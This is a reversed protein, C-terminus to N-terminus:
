KKLFVMRKFTVQFLFNKIRHLNDNIRALLLMKMLYEQLLIIFYLCKSVALEQELEAVKEEASKARTVTDRFLTATLKESFIHCPNCFTFNYAVALM